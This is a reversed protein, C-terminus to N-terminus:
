GQEEGTEGGLLARKVREAIKDVVVFDRMVNPTLQGVGAVAQYEPLSLTSTGIELADFATKDGYVVRRVSVGTGQGATGANQWKLIATRPSVDRPLKHRFTGTATPTNGAADGNTRDMLVGWTTGGDDTYDYARMSGSM